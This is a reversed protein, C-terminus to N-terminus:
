DAAEDFRPEGPCGPRSGAPPNGHRGQAALQEPRAGSDREHRRFPALTEGVAEPEAAQRHLHRVLRREVVVVDEVAAELAAVGTGQHAVPARAGGEERPVEIQGSAVPDREHGPRLLKHGREGLGHFGGHLALPHLPLHRRAPARRVPVQFHHPGLATREEPRRRPQRVPHDPVRGDSRSAVEALEPDFQSREVLQDVVEQVVAGGVVGPLGLQLVEPVPDPSGDQAVASRPPEVAGRFLRHALEEQRPSVARLM